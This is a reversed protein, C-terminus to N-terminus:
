RLLRPVKMVQKAEPELVKIIRSESYDGYATLKRGVTPPLLVGMGPVPM